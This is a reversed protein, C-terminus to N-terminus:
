RRHGDLRIPMVLTTFTGQDASRVVVPRHPDVFELLADPGVSASLAAGLVTASFAVQIPPGSCIAQLSEGDRVASASVVIQNDAIRLVITADSSGDLVHDLLQIRDVIARTVAPGISALITRYDPFDADLTPVVRQEGDMIAVTQHATIDVQIDHSRAASRALDSMIPAPILAQRPVGDVRHPKLARVSLRYRDTAAFAVEDAGVDLLVCALSPDDDSTPAAPVVQRAASAFEAGALTVRCQRAAQPLTGLVRAAVDRAPGVKAELARVHAHLVNSADQATGDLVARVDSLSLEVLRLDRLLSGRPEQEATYYRYGTTPDVYAPRLLDCDNYFRLACPTLGVRRAFVGITLLKDPVTM